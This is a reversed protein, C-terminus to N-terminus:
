PRVAPVVDYLPFRDRARLAEGLARDVQLEAAIDEPVSRDVHLFRWVCRGPRGLRSALARLLADFREGPLWDTVNSLHARDYTGAPRGLVHAVVDDQVWQVDGLRGRLAPYGEPSLWGQAASPSVLTGLTHVQLWPNERAPTRTCLDRFRSFYQPGLSGRARRQALARPDLGGGRYLVPHFAVTFVLRLVRGEFKRSFVESQRSLDSAELLEQVAGGVLPRAVTLLKKLYREYRGGWVLGHRLLEPRAKWFARSSSPLGECAARLWGRREGERATVLGLLGLTEERSLTRVCATKLRCLELQGPHVDVATVREAGRALLGLAVDGASAVSLVKGGPLKLAESETRDDEQSLGFDYPPKM